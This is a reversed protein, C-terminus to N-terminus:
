RIKKSGVAYLSVATQPLIETSFFHQATNQLGADSVAEINQCLQPYQIINYQKM